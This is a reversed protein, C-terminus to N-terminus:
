MLMQNKLASWGGCDKVAYLCPQQSCCKGVVRNLWLHREDGEKVCLILPKYECVCNEFFYGISNRLSINGLRKNRYANQSEEAKPNM